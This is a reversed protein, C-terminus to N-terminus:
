RAAAAFSSEVGPENGHIIVIDPGCRAVLRRPVRPALDRCECDTDGTVVIRMDMDDRFTTPPGPRSYAFPFLSAIFQCVIPLSDSCCKM